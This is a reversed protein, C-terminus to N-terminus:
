EALFSEVDAALILEVSSGLMYVTYLHEPCESHTSIFDAATTIVHEGDHHHVIRADLGLSGVKTVNTDAIYYGEDYDESPVVEKETINVSYAGGDDTITVYGVVVEAGDNILQEAYDETLYEVTLEPESITSGSKEEGCGTLLFLPMLCLFLLAIILSSRKKMTIEM